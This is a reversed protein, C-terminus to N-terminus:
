EFFGVNEYFDEVGHIIIHKKIMEKILPSNMDFRGFKLSIFSSIEKLGSDVDDGEVYIDIDSKSTATFNAYSGFLVVLKRGTKGIVEKLIVGLKPYKTLLLDFKYHEAMYVYMRAQLTSKIFFVKNKGEKRYDIVNKVSLDDLVRMVTSPSASMARAVGRLYTEGDILVLIVKLATFYTDNRKQYM